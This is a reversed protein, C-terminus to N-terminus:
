SLNKARVASHSCYKSIFIDKQLDTDTNFVVIDEIEGQPYLDLLAALVYGKKELM